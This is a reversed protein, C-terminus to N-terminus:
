RGSSRQVRRLVVWFAQRYVLTFLGGLAVAVWDPWSQSFAILFATGVGLAVIVVLWLVVAAPTLPSTDFSKRKGRVDRDEDAPRSHRGSAPSEM